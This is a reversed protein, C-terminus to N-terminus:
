QTVEMDGSQYVLTSVDLFAERGREVWSVRLDIQTMGYDFPTAQSSWTYGPFQEGFDGSDGSTSWMQTAVLENLKTDALSAAEAMNRARSAAALSMSVGRMAVPLVIGLLLLTALVEILTFGRRNDRPMSSSRATM